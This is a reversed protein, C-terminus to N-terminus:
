QRKSNRLVLSDNLRYRGLADDPTLDVPFDVHLRALSTPSAATSKFHLAPSPPAVIKDAWKVGTANCTAGEKRHLSYTSGSLVTCWTVDGGGAPATKCQSDLTLKAWLGSADTQVARACHAERRIKSLALRAAQQAEFRRNLDIEARTASVFLTTLGSLVIGLIVLVTLLEVLSYGHEARFRAVLRRGRATM